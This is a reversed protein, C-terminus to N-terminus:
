EVDYTSNSHVFFDTGIEEPPPFISSSRSASRTLDGSVEEIDSEDSDSLLEMVERGGEFTTRVKAASSTQRPLGASQPEAKVSVRLPDDLAESKIQIEGVQPFPRSSSADRDADAGICGAVNGHLFARLAPINIWEQDLFQGANAM